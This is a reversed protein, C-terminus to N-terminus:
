VYVLIVTLEEDYFHIGTSPCAKRKQGIRDKNGTKKQMLNLLQQALHALHFVLGMRIVSDIKVYASLHIDVVQNAMFHSYTLKKKRETASPPVLHMRISM